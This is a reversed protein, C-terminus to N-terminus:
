QPLWRNPSVLPSRTRLDEPAASLVSDTATASTARIRRSVRTFPLFRRLPGVGLAIDHGHLRKAELYQRARETRPRSGLQIATVSVGAARVAEIKDPNNTLLRVSGLGLKALTAAASVYSRHDAPYGLAAYSEFTDAGTQESYCYGRAKAILGVGRGEQELYIVVGAGEQQILDLSRDLEAGCDCDDSRLAEGYLCRSHIRVLCDKPLNEGFILAYGVSEDDGIATVRIPLARGKRVFRHRTVESRRGNLASGDLHSM